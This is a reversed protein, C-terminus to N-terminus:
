EALAAIQQFGTLSPNEFQRKHIMDAVEIGEPTAAAGPVSGFGGM